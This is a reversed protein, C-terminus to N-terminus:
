SRCICYKCTGPIGVNPRLYQTLSTNNYCLHSSDIQHYNCLCSNTSHSILFILGSWLWGPKSKWQTSHPHSIIGPLTQHKAIAKLFLRIPRVPGNEPGRVEQFSTSLYFFGKWMIKLFLISTWVHIFTYKM